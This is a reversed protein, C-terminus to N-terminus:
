IKNYIKYRLVYKHSGLINGNSAVGTSTTLEFVIYGPENYFMKYGSNFEWTGDETTNSVYEKYDNGFTKRNVWTYSSSNGFRVKRSDRNQFNSNKGATFLYKYFLVNYNDNMVYYSSPVVFDNVGLGIYENNVKGLNTLVKNFADPALHRKDKSSFYDNITIHGSDNTLSILVRSTDKQITADQVNLTFRKGSELYCIAMYDNQLSVITDRSIAVVPNSNVINVSSDDKSCGIFSLVLVLAVIIKRM